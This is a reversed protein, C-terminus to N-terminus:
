RDLTPANENHSKQANSSQSRRQYTFTKKDTMDAYHKHDRAIDQQRDDLRKIMKQHAQDLRLRDERQALIFADKQSRDRQIAQLAERENRQQIRKHEGRLRDWFGSLGSRFRAQRAKTEALRRQELREMIAKREIRHKAIMAQKRKEHEAIHRDRKEAIQKEFRSLVPGMEQAIHTKATEVDPLYDTDPMRVKVAKATVGLWKKGLAYVEGKHDVAVVGHRDGKALTYGRAKLAHAFSKQDDSSVRADQLAGKIARPDKGQRKAKQWEDLTFNRPDRLSKDAMGNPMRWGHQIHLERSVNQLKYRDHAMSIAKMEGADIRSWVARYGDPRGARVYM